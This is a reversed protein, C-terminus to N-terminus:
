SDIEVGMVSWMILDAERRRSDVKRNWGFFARSSPPRSSSELIRDVESWPGPEAM